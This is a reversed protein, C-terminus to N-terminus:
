KNEDILFDFFSITNIKYRGKSIIAKQTKGVGIDIATIPYDIKQNKDGDWHTSKVEFQKPSKLFDSFEIKVTQFGKWIIQKKFILHQEGSKDHLIVFLNNNSKDGDINISMMEAKYINCPIRLFIDEYKINKSFGYSIEPKRKNGDQLFDIKNDKTVFLKGKYIDDINLETVKEIGIEPLKAISIEKVELNVGANGKFGIRPMMINLKVTAIPNGNWLFITKGNQTRFSLTYFVNKDFQLSGGKLKIMQGNEYKVFYYYREGSSLMLASYNKKDAYDLIVEIWPFTIEWDSTKIRIDVSFNDPVSIHDLLIIGGKSNVLSQNEIKWNDKSGNQIKWYECLEADVFSDTFVTKPEVNGANLKYM